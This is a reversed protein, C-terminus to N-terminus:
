YTPSKADRADAPEAVAAELSKLLAGRAGSNNWSKLVEVRVALKLDDLTITLSV